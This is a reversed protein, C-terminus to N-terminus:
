QIVKYGIPTKCKFGIFKEIKDNIILVYKFQECDSKKIGNISKIKKMRKEDCVLTEEGNIIKYSCAEHFKIENKKNSCSALVISLFLFSTLKIL